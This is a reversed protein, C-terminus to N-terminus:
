AGEGLENLIQQFEAETTKHGIVTLYAETVFDDPEDLGRASQRQLLRLDSILDALAIERRQDPDIHLTVPMSDIALLNM